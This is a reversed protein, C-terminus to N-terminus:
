LKSTIGTSGRHAVSSREPSATGFMAREARAQAQDMARAHVVARDVTWWMQKFQEAKVLASVNINHGALTVAEISLYLVDHLHNCV